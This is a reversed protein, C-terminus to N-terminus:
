RAVGPRALGLSGRLGGEGYDHRFLKRRQLEPVVEEVFCTLDPLMVPALINFGDAAGSKFWREMSDAIQGADGFLKWHTRASSLERILQRITLKRTRALNVAYEFRAKRANTAPLDPLPGDLDFNSLDAYGLIRSLQARGSEIDVLEQLEEFREMAAKESSAVIPFMGPMIKIDDVSRGAAVARRKVDGYFAQAVDIDATATFIVEGKRAALDRGSDSAGAQVIVPHGSPSRPVNLPGRVKFHQGHHDLVRMKAPDFSLGTHKHVAFADDDWSDWLGKLVDIFEDAREYRLAHEMHSDQGFNRAESDNVSTVVNWGARGESLHDLSALQRALAYPASYTTSASAILGIKSTHAALMSLLTLPEFRVPEGSREPTGPEGQVAPHDALFLFDLLGKEATQAIQIHHKLNLLGQSATDHRWAALHHGTERIFVGLHM